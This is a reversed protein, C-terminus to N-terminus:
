EGLQATPTKFTERLGLACLAIIVCALGSYLAVGLSSGDFAIFLATAIAAATGGGLAAGLQYTTSISSYRSDKSFQEGLFAPICGQPMAMLVSMVINAFIALVLVQTDVLSFFAFFFLAYLVAGGAVVKKRGLRDSLLGMLPAALMFAVAGAMQLVLSESDTYGQQLTYTITFITGIYAITNYGFAVGIALLMQQPHRKIAALLPIRPARERSIEDKPMRSRAALGVLVLLGGLWFPVRWAGDVLDLGPILSLVTFVGAGLLSGIGIGTSTFSGWLGRRGAPANEIGFLSAGGWEGGAAFGQVLRLAVLLVPAFAGITEYTPLCGILFTSAGMLLLTLVLMSKRGIRDGFHGIVIGGLPRAIFGVGFATFAVLTGTLPDATPFFLTPFVLAAAFGYIIFDYFELATGFGSIFFTRWATIAAKGTAAGNTSDGSGSAAPTAPELTTDTM